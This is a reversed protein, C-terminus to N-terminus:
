KTWAHEGWTKVLGAKVPNNRIYAVCRAWETEDRIWRDFWERQWVPGHGSPLARIRKASRGKLRKMIDTLTHSCEAAPVILAHWHNPMATFHPVSIQWESLATFEEVLIRTAAPDRLPCSGAGADLFKELTRFIRRHRALAEPAALPDRSIEAQLERLHVLAERPLSDACRVTM